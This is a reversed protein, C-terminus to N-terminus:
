IKVSVPMGLMTMINLVSSSICAETKQQPLARAKLTNGFIHKYCQVALAAYNRTNYGTLKQWPMRGLKAITQIHEDRQTNGAQSVVATNRPPIIIQADPHKGLVAQSVPEGNYAGDDMFTSIPTAIQDLLEPVATPNDVDPTTLECAVIQHKENIVSIAFRIHKVLM